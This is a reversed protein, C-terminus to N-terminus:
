SGDRAFSIQPCAGGLGQVCRALTLMEISTSFGSAITAVLFISFGILLIPKRGFKDSLPGYFLQGVAFGILYASMTWQVKAPTTQLDETLNPLSPVYLDTAIPGM